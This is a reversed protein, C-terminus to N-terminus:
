RYPKHTRVGKFSYFLINIICKFMGARNISRYFLPYPLKNILREVEFEGMLDRNSFCFILASKFM